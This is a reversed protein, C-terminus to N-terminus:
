LGSLFWFVVRGFRRIFIAVVCIVFFGAGVFFFVDVGAERAEEEIDFYDYATLVVIMVGRGLLERLERTTEIGNMRPMKWDILVAFLSQKKVERNM